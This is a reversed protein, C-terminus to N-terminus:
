VGSAPKLLTLAGALWGVFTVGYVLLADFGGAGWPVAGTLFILLGLLFYVIASVVVPIGFTEVVEDRSLSRAGDLRIIKAKLDQISFGLAAATSTGLATLLAGAAWFLADPPDYPPTGEVTPYTWIPILLTSWIVVTAVLIAYILVAYVTGSKMARGWLTPAREGTLESPWMM